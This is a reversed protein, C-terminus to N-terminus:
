WTDLQPEIGYVAAAVTKHTTTSWPDVHVLLYTSQGHTVASRWPSNKQWLHGMCSGRCSVNAWLHGTAALLLGHTTSHCTWGWGFGCNSAAMTTSTTIMHHCMVGQVQNSWSFTKLLTIRPAGTTSWGVTSYWCSVMKTIMWEQCSPWDDHM